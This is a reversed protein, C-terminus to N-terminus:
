EKKTKTSPGNRQHLPPPGPTVRYSLQCQLFWPSQFGSVSGSGQERNRLVNRYRPILCGARLAWPSTLSWPWRQGRCTTSQDSWFRFRSRGTLGTSNSKQPTAPARSCPPNGDSAPTGWCPAEPSSTTVKTIRVAKAMKTKTPLALPWSVHSGTRFSGNVSHGQGLRKLNM